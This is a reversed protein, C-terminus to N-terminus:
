HALRGPRRRRRSGQRRPGPLQIAGAAEGYPSGPAAAARWTWAPCRPAGATHARAEATPPRPASPTADGGTRQCRFLARGVRPRRESAEGARPRPAPWVGKARPRSFARDPSLWPEHAKKRGPTACATATPSLRRAQAAALGTPPGT